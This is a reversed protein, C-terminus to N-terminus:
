LQNRRTGVLRERNPEATATSCMKEPLQLVIERWQALRLGSVMQVSISTLCRSQRAHVVM